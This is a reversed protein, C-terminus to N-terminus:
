ESIGIITEKAFSSCDKIEEEGLVNLYEDLIWGGFDSFSEYFAQSFVGGIGSNKKSGGKSFKIV